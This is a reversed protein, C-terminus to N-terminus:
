DVTVGARLDPVRVRDRARERRTAGGTARQEPQLLRETAVPLRLERRHVRVGVSCNVRVHQLYVM